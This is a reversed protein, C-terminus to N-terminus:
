ISSSASTGPSPAIRASVRRWSHTRAAAGLCDAGTPAQGRVPGAFLRGLWAKGVGMHSAKSTPVVSGRHNPREARGTGHRPTCTASDGGFGMRDTSVEPGQRLIDACSLRATGQPARGHRPGQRTVFGLTPQGSALHPPATSSNATWRTFPRVWVLA